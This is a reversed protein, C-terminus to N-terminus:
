PFRERVAESTGDASADDVVITEMGPVPSRALSALCALTLDRTEHTPIVISLPPRSNEM